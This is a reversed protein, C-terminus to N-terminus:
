TWTWSPSPRASRPPPPSPTQCARHAHTCCPPRPEARRRRPRRAAWRCRARATAGTAREGPCRCFSPGAHRRRRRRGCRAAFPAPCSSMCSWRSPPASSRGSRPRRLPPSSMFFPPILWGLHGLALPWLWFPARAGAGWSGAREAGRLREGGGGRPGGGAHGRVQGGGATGPQLRYGSALAGMGPRAIFPFARRGLGVIVGGGSELRASRPLAAGREARRVGGPGTGGSVEAVARGAVQTVAYKGEEQQALGSSYGSALAGMGLRAIFPFAASAVNALQGEPVTFRKPDPGANRLGDPGPQPHKSPPRPQIDSPLPPTLLPPPNHSPAPLRTAPSHPPPVSCPMEARRHLQSTRDAAAAM